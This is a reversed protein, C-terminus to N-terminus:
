VDRGRMASNSFLRRGGVITQFIGKKNDRRDLTTRAPREGMDALFNKFVEWRACIGLPM